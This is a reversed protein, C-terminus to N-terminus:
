MLPNKYINPNGYLDKESSKKKKPSLIGLSFRYNRRALKKNNKRLIKALVEFSDEEDVSSSSEESIEREYHSKPFRFIRNQHNDESIDRNIETEFTKLCEKESSLHKKQQDSPSFAKESRMYFEEKKGGSFEMINFVSTMYEDNIKSSSAFDSNDNQASYNTPKSSTYCEKPFNTIEPTTSLVLNKMTHTSKTADSGKTQSQPQSLKKDAKTRPTSEFKMDSPFNVARTSSPAIMTLTQSDENFLFKVANKMKKVYPNRFSYLLRTKPNINLQSCFTTLFVISKKLYKRIPRHNEPETRIKSLKDSIDDSISITSSSFKKEIDETQLLDTFYPDVTQKEFSNSHGETNVSDLCTLDEADGLNFEKDTAQRVKDNSKEEKTLFNSHDFINEVIIDQNTEPIGKHSPSNQSSKPGDSVNRFTMMSENDSFQDIKFSQIESLPTESISDDSFLEFGEFNFHEDSSGASQMEEEMLEIGSDFIQDLEATSYNVKSVNKTRLHYIGLLEKSKLESKDTFESKEDFNITYVLTITTIFLQFLFKKWM